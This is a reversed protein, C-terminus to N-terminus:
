RVPPTIAKIFAQILDPYLYAGVMTLVVLIFTAFLSSSFGTWFGRSFKTSESFRFQLDKQMDGLVDQMIRHRNELLYTEGYEMVVKNATNELSELLTDTCRAHYERLEDLTVPSGARARATCYEAKMKKYFYYAVMGVIPRNREEARSTLREFFVNYTNQM